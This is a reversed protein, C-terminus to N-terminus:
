IDDARGVSVFQEAALRRTPLHLLMANPGAALNLATNQYGM